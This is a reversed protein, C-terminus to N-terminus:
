WSPAMARMHNYIYTYIYVYMCILTHVHVQIHIENLVFSLSRLAVGYFVQFHSVRQSGIGFRM